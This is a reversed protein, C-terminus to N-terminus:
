RSRTSLQVRIVAAATEAEAQQEPTMKAVLADMEDPHEADANSMYVKFWTLAKVPDYMEGPASYLDALQEQAASIGRYASKVLWSEALQLDKGTGEGKIYLTGVMYMAFPHGRNAALSYLRFAEDVNKEVGKGFYYAEALMTQANTNGQDAAKRFWPVAKDPEAEIGDHGYYIMIAYENQAEAVGQEASKLLWVQAAVIDKAVGDGYKLMLGVMTQAPAYGAEAAKLYLAYADADQHRRYLDEGRCFLGEANDAKAKASTCDRIVDDLSSAAVPPEGAMLFVLGIAVALTAIRM